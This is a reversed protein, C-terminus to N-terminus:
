KFDGLLGESKFLIEGACENGLCAILFVRERHQPGGWYEANYVRWAVSWGNGDLLGAHEWQKPVPVHVEGQSISAFSELVTAFDRRKNSSFSGLVNEWVVYKPYKGNTENRM